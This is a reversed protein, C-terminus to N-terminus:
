GLKRVQKWRANAALKALESRKSPSLKRNRAMVALKALKTRQRKSLNKRSNKGGKAGIKRLFGRNIQVSVAGNRVSALHAVDRGELRSKIRALAESDEVLIAKVGLGNLAWELSQLGIRKAPRPGLLKSFYGRPAGTIEDMLEFSMDRHQDRVVNLARRLEDYNTFSALPENMEAPRVQRM